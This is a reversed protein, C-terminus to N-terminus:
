LTLSFRFQLSVRDKPLSSSSHNSKVLCFILFLQLVRRLLLSLSTKVLKVSLNRSFVSHSFSQFQFVRCEWFLAELNSKM